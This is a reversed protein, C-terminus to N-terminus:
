EYFLISEKKIELLQIKIEIQPMITDELVIEENITLTNKGNFAFRNIVPVPLDEIKKEIDDFPSKEYYFDIMISNENLNKIMFKIDLLSLGFNANVSLGSLITEEKQGYMNVEIKIKAVLQENM